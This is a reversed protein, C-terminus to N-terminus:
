RALADEVSAFTPIVGDLGTISIARAVITSAPIVLRVPVMRHLAELMAIGASDLYRTRSLDVVLSRTEARGTLEDRVAEANSADVEGALEAVVVDDREVFHLEHLTDNV